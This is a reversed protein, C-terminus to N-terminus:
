VTVRGGNRFGLEGGAAGIWLYARLDRVLVRDEIAEVDVTRALDAEALAYILNDLRTWAM